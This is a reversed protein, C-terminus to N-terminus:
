PPSQRLAIMSEHARARASLSFTHGARSERATYILQPATQSNPDSVVQRRASVVVMWVEVGVDLGSCHTEAKTINGRVELGLRRLARDLEM